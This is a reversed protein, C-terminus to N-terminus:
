AKSSSLTHWSADLTRFVPVLSAMPNNDQEEDSFFGALRLTFHWSEEAVWCSKVLFNKEKRKEGVVRFNPWSRPLFGVM